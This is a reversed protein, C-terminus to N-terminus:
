ALRRGLFEVVPPMVSNGVLRYRAGEPVGEVGTWGDPFGQVRECEVPTLRRVRMEGARIMRRAEAASSVPRDAYLGTKGGFNGAESLQTQALGDPSYIRKGQVNPSIRRIGVCADEKWTSLTFSRGDGRVHQGHGNLHMGSFPVAYLGTNEAGAGGGRERAMLTMADGGVRIDKFSFGGSRIRASRAKARRGATDGGGARAVPLVERASSGRLVGVIWLRHRAQPLWDEGRLVQWGADYGIADLTRLMSGFTEGNDISLLGPVNELLLYRPRHREAIRAIEYFLTGRADDIGARKGAVSFPQCPFGGCLIDHEPLDAADTKTADNWLPADPWHRGYVLRAHRDWEVAGVCEHGARSLGLHFGGIGAFLDLFRM